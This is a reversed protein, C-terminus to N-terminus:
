KRKELAPWLGAQLFSTKGAGSEGSLIGFRWHDDTIAQVCEKLSQSRQLHAFDEADEYGFPLLGKIVGPKVDGNIPPKRKARAAVIVASIFVVSILSWFAPSYWAKKELDQFFFLMLGHFPWQHPNFLLFLVVDILVLLSRWNKQRFIDEVIWDVAKVAKEFIKGPTELDFPM